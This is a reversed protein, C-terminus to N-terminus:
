GERALTRTLGGHHLHKGSVRVGRLNSVQPKAAGCSEGARHTGLGLAFRGPLRRSRRSSRSMVSQDGGVAFAGGGGGEGSDVAQTERIDLAEQVDGIDASTVWEILSSPLALRSADTAARARREGRRMAAHGSTAVHLPVAHNHVRARAYRHERLTTPCPRVRGAM